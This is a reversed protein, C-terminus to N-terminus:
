KDFMQLHFYQSVAVYLSMQIDRREHKMSAPCVLFLYSLEPFPLHKGCQGPGGQMKTKRASMDHEVFFVPCM